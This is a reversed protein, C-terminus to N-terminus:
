TLPMAAVLAQLQADSVPYPLIDLHAIDGFLNSAGVASSGVRLTSLGSTPGGTTSQVADGNLCLSVGGSGDISMGISFPTGATMNGLTLNSSVGGTIRGGRISASSALNFVRYATADVGGDIHLLFQSASAPAAQPIMFTGLVTCAGSAPIGLRALPASLLDAGRTSAGTTAPLIPTSAFSAQELQPAAIRIRVTGAANSVLSIGESVFATSAVMSKTAVYRTLTSSAGVFSTSTQGLNGGGSNRSAVVLDALSLLSGGSLIALFESLTWTQGDAAPVTTTTGEFRLTVQGGVASFVFDLDLCPLGNVTSVGVVSITCNALGAAANTPLTSPASAGSFRVNRISNTRQGEVRLRRASGYYRPVDAAVESWTADDAGLTTSVAGGAQARAFDMKTSLWAPAILQQRWRIPSRLPGPRGVAGTGLLGLM